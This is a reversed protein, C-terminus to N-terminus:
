YDIKLFHSLLDGEQFLAMIHPYGQDRNAPRRLCVGLIFTSKAKLVQANYTYVPMCKTSEALRCNM